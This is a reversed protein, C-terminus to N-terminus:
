WGEGMEVAGSVAPAGDFYGGLTGLVGGLVAAASRANGTFTGALTRGGAAGEVATFGAPPSREPLPAADAVSLPWCLILLLVYRLRRRPPPITM